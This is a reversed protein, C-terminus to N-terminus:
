LMSEGREGAWRRVVRVVSSFHRLRPFTRPLHLAAPRRGAHGARRGQHVGVRPGGVCTMRRVSEVQEVTPDDAM